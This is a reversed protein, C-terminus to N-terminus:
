ISVDRAAFGDIRRSGRTRSAAARGRGGWPWACNAAHQFAGGIDDDHDAPIASCSRQLDGRRASGETRQAELAFDIMMIANKKVIGILLLIGVIAYLNLDVRFIM